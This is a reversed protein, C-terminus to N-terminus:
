QFFYTYLCERGAASSINVIDMILVLMNTDQIYDSAIKPAMCKTTHFFFILMNFLYEAEMKLNPSRRGSM